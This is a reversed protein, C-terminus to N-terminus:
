VKRFRGVAWRALWRYYAPSRWNTALHTLARARPSSWAQLSVSEVVTTALRLKYDEMGRMFDFEDCHLDTLANRLTAEVVLNGAGFRERGPAFATDWLRHARGDLLVVAYAALEDDLRLETLEVAGDRALRELIARRFDRHRPRGLMSPRGEARDRALRVPETERALAAVEAPERTSRLAFAVGERDLRNRMTRVNQRYSRSTYTDLSRDAGLLLAPASVGPQLVVTQLRHALASAVPDDAPLQALSLTWPRRFRVLTEVIREALQETADGDVAPLITRDSPGDGAAVVEIWGARRRSALLAAATLRDGHHVAVLLPEFDPNCDLWTQLWPRRATVPAESAVLLEDL